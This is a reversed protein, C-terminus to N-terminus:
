RDLHQELQRESLGGPHDGTQQQERPQVPGNGVIRGQASPLLGQLHLDGIATCVPRQVQKDGRLCQQAIGQRAASLVPM